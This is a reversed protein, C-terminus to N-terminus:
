LITENERLELFSYPYPIEQQGASGREARQPRDRRSRRRDGGRQEGSASDPRLGEAQGAPAVVTSLVFNAMGDTVTVNVRVAQTAVGYGSGLPVGLQSEAEGLNSFYPQDTTVQERHFEMNETEAEGLGSWVRIVEPSASNVNIASFRYLSVMSKFREFRANPVGQSDFFAERFGAVAALEYFSRLARYPPRYPLDAREYDLHNASFSGEAVGQDMWSLLAETLDQAELSDFGLEEFLRLLRDQDAGPLSIKGMEDVFEVRVEIGSPLEVGALYLPDDWGQSPAHLSGAMREVNHLVAITSELASYAEVRLRDREAHVAEALIEGYAREIFRSMAFAALVILFLTLLLVSGKCNRNM